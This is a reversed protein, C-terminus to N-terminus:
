KLYERVTALTRAIDRGSYQPNVTVFDFLAVQEVDHHDFFLYVQELMQLIEM